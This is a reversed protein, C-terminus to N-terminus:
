AFGELNDSLSQLSFIMSLANKMSFIVASMNGIHQIQKSRLAPGWNPPPKLHASSPNPPVNWRLLFM